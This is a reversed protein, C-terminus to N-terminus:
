PHNMNDTPANKASINAAAVTIPSQAPECRHQVALTDLRPYGLRALRLAPSRHATRCATCRWLGCPREAWPRGSFPGAPPKSSRRSQAPPTPRSRRRRGTVATGSWQGPLTQPPAHPTSRLDADGGPGYRDIRATDAFRGHLCCHGHWHRARGQATPEIQVVLLDPLEIGVALVVEVARGAAFIAVVDFAYAGVDSRQAQKGRLSRAATPGAAASLRVLIANAMPQAPWCVPPTASRRRDRPPQSFAMLHDALRIRTRIARHHLEPRIGVAADGLDRRRVAGVPVLQPVRVDDDRVPRLRARAPQEPRPV